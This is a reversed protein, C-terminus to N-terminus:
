KYSTVRQIKINFIYFWQNPVLISYTIQLMNMHFFIVSGNFRHQLLAIAHSLTGPKNLGEPRLSPM